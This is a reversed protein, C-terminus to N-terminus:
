VSPAAPVPDSLHPTMSIKSLRAKPLAKLEIRASLACEKLAAVDGAAALQAARELIHTEPREVM